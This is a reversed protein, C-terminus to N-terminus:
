LLKKDPQATYHLCANGKEVYFHVDLYVFNFEGSCRAALDAKMAAKWYDPIDANGDIANCVGELSGSIDNMSWWGNPKGSQRGAPMKNVTSVGKNVIPIATGLQTTETNTNM